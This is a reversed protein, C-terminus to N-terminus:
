REIIQWRTAEFENIKGILDNRAAKHRPLLPQGLMAELYFWIAAVMVGDRNRGNGPLVAFRGVHHRPNHHPKEM